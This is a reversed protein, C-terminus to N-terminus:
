NGLNGIQSRVGKKNKKTRYFRNSVILELGVLAALLLVLLPYFEQGVRMAGQERQIEDRNRAIQLRGEGFWSPLDDEAVRDLDTAADPLNVSFGRLVLGQRDGKLRYHGPSYTFKYRLRNKNAVLQTPEENRPSFLSYSEPHKQKDNELSAIESVQLNLSVPSATVLYNALRRILLWSPWCTELDYFLRNWATPEERTRFDHTESIPTTMLIMQGLGVRREVLAPLQNSYRFLVEFQIDDADPFARMGWHRFIDLEDWRIRSAAQSFPQVIPHSQSNPILFAGQWPNDASNTRWINGIEGPLLRKAQPSNFSDDIQGNRAAQDGLFMAIGGGDETFATLQNWNGESLPRPNLLFITQYRALSEPGLRGLDRQEMAECEFQDSIADILNDPAVGSPSLVLAQWAARTQITFYRKDDLRLGDGSTFEISGHHTGPPLPEDLVFQLAATRGAGASVIQQRTIFQDPLVTEGDARYPGTKNPVEIALTAVGGELPDTSQLTANIELRENEAIVESNFRLGNISVNRPQPVGVDIVYNTVDAHRESLSKLRDANQWSYRTLDSFVYLERRENEAESLLQWARPIVNPLSVPTYDIEITELRKEAASIDISFFPESGDPTAVSVQSAEPLQEVIWRALDVAQDLRSQNDHIYSMRPSNDIILVASVPAARNGLIQQTPNQWNQWAIALAAFSCILFLTAFVALLLRNRPRTWLWTALLLLGSLLAVLAATGATLWAGFQGTSASIGALAVVIALILLCRLLLLLYHRLNLQRRNSQQRTQVFRIAPFTQRKPKPRMLLHLLIPVAILLAGIALVIGNTLAM